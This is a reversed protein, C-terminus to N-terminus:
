EGKYKVREWISIGLIKCADKLEEEDYFMIIPMGEQQDDKYNLDILQSISYIDNDKGRAIVGILNHTEGLDKDDMYLNSQKQWLPIKFVAEKNEKIIKM